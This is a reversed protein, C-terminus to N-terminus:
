EKDQRRKNGLLTNNRKPFWMGSVKNPDFAWNAQLAWENYFFSFSCKYRSFLSCKCATTKKNKYKINKTIRINSILNSNSVM